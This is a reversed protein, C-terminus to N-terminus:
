HKRVTSNNSRECHLISGVALVWLTFQEDGGSSGRREWQPANGCQKGTVMYVAGKGRSGEGMFASLDFFVARKFRLYLNIRYLRVICM